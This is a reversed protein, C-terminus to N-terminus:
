WGGVGLVGGVATWVLACRTWLYYYTHINHINHINHIYTHQINYTNQDGEGIGYALHWIGSAM